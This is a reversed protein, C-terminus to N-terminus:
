LDINYRKCWYSKEALKERNPIEAFRAVIRDLDKSAEEKDGVLYYMLTKIGPYGEVQNFWNHNRFAPLDVILRLDSIVSVVKRNVERFDESVKM